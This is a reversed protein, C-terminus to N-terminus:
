VISFALRGAARIPFIFPCGLKKKKGRFIAMRIERRPFPCAHNAADQAFKKLHKYQKQSGGNADSLSSAAHLLLLEATHHKGDGHLIKERTTVFYL